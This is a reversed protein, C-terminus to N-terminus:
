EVETCIRLSELPQKLESKKLVVQEMEGPALVRKKIRRIREGNCYVCVCRDRYVDAVRFRVTVTDAMHEADLKQPVTYRVGGDATIAFVRARQERYVYGRALIGLPTDLFGRQEPAVELRAVDLWNEETIPELRIRM